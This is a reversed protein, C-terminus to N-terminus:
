RRFGGGSIQAERDAGDGRRLKPAPRLRCIRPLPPKPRAFTPRPNESAIKELRENQAAIFLNIKIDPKVRVLDSM